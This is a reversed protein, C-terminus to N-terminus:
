LGGICIGDPALATGFRSIFEQLFQILQLRTGSVSVAADMQVPPPRSSAQPWSPRRVGIYEGPDGVRSRSGFFTESGITVTESSEGAAWRKLLQSRDRRTPHVDRPETLLWEGHRGHPVALRHGLLWNRDRQNASPRGNSIAGRLVVPCCQIGCFDRVCSIWREPPRGTIRLCRM